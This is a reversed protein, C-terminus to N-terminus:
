PEGPGHASGVYVFFGPDCVLTGFSGGKGIPLELDADAQLILAYTGAINPPSPM